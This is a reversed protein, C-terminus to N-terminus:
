IASHNSLCETYFSLLATDLPLGYLLITVTASKTRSTRSYCARLSATTQALNSRSQNSNGLTCQTSNITTAHQTASPMYLAVSSVSSFESPKLSCANVYRLRHSTMGHLSYQPVSWADHLNEFQWM